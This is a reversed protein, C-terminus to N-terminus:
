KQLNQQRNWLNPQLAFIQATSPFVHDLIKKLISINIQNTLESSYYRSSVLNGYYGDVYSALTMSNENYFGNRIKTEVTKADEISNNKSANSATKQLIQLSQDLNAHTLPSYVLSAENLDKPGDQSTKKNSQRRNFNAVILTPEDNQMELPSLRKESRRLTKMEPMQIVTIKKANALKRNQKNAAASAKCNPACVCKPLGKKM